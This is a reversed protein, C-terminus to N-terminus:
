QKVFSRMLRKGGAMRVLLIYRGAHLDAVNFTLAQDNTGQDLVIRGTMDMLTVEAIPQNATVHLVDATPSPYMRLGIAVEAEDIGAATGGFALDDIKMTSGEVPNTYSSSGVTVFASDPTSGIFYMIPVNFTQWSSVTGSAYLVGVGVVDESQTATNWHTFQVAAFASDDTMVDYQWQGTFAGPRSTYPFGGDEAAASGVGIIGPLLGIDATNRTTLMAYHNGVAGPSGQECSLSVGELSTLENFTIWNTPDQYAGGTTWDEFGGNPIQALVTSSFLGVAGVLLITTRMKM